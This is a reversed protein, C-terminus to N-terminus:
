LSPFILGDATTIELTQMGHSPSVGFTDKMTRTLHASDAFGADHAAETLSAGKSVTLGAINLRRWLVYRRLPIGINQRFLSHFHSKSLGSAKAIKNAYIRNDLADDILALAKAIRPDYIDNKTKSLLDILGAMISPPETKPPLLAPEVFIIDIDADTPQMQHTCNSAIFLPSGSRGSAGEIHVVIPINESYAIQHLFHAHMQNDGAPGQYHAWGDAILLKGHWKLKATM